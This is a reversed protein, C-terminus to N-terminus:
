RVHPARLRCRWHWDLSVAVPMGAAGPGPWFCAARVSPCAWQLEVVGYLHIQPICPFIITAMHRCKVPACPVEQLLRIFNYAVVMCRTSKCPHPRRGISPVHTGHAMTAPLCCAGAKPQMLAAWAATGQRRIGALLVHTVRPSDQTRVDEAVEM